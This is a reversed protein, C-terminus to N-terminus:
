LLYCRAHSWLAAAFPVLVFIGLLTLVPLAYQLAVRAWHKLKSVIAARGQPLLTVVVAVGRCVIWCLYGGIEATYLEHSRLLRENKRAGEADLPALNGAVEVAGAAAAAGAAKEGPTGTWLMMLRRGIYVPVTLTLMAACVISLCMLSLLACLRIAFLSPKDYPQFGVPADRQMMAQHAAALNRPAPAPEV